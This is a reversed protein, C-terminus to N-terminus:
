FLRCLFAITVGVVITILCVWVVIALIGGLAAGISDILNRKM